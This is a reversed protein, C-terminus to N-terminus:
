EISLSFISLFQWVKCAAMDLALLVPYNGFSYPVKWNVQILPMSHWELMQM